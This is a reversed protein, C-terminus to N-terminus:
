NFARIISTKEEKQGPISKLRGEKDFFNRITTDRFKMDSETM